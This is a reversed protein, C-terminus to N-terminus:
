NCVFYASKKNSIDTNGSEISKYIRILNTKASHHAGVKSLDKANEIVRISKAISKRADVTWWGEGYLPIPQDPLNDFYTKLESYLM